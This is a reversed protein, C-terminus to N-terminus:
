YFYTVLYSMYCVKQIEHSWQLTFNVLFSRSQEVRYYPLPLTQVTKGNMCIEDAIRCIGQNGECGREPANKVGRLYECIPWEDRLLDTQCEPRGDKTM